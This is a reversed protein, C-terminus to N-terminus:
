PTARDKVCGDAVPRLYGMVVEEIHALRADLRPKSALDMGFITSLTHVNSLYFYGLAAITIYLQVPDVDDRFDGAEVGRELSNEIQTILPSHLDRITPLRRLYRARHLNENNLIRIFWPNALFHEFTFRVLGRMAEAPAKHELDLGFEGIRIQRYVDELVASYLEDKSNFYHYILRKNADAREAIRDVRAGDLGREAFEARAAELIERRTVEPNRARHALTRAPKEFL